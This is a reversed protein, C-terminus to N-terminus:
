KKKDGMGIAMGVVAGVIATMVTSVAIDVLVGNLKMMTTTGYMVMDMGLGMLFGIIAGAQAGGGATNISAWRTFIYSLLFGFALNGVVLAWMIIADGRDVSCDTGANAAYFDKLLMGYLLWGLLFAAVGGAIGGIVFKNTNM